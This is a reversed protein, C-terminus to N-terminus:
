IDCDCLFNVWVWRACARHCWVMPSGWCPPPMIIIIFVWCKCHIMALTHGTTMRLSKMRWSLNSINVKSYHCGCPFTAITSFYNISLNRQILIAFKTMRALPLHIQLTEPFFPKKISQNFKYFFNILVVWWTLTYIKARMAINRSSVVIAAWNPDKSCHTFILKFINKKLQHFGYM